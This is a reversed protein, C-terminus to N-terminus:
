SPRLSSMSFTEPCHTAGASTSPASMSWGAAGARPPALGRVVRLAEPAARGLLDRPKPLPIADQVPLRRGETPVRAAKRVERVVADVVMDRRSAPLADREDGLVLAALAPRQGIGLKMALDLAYASSQPGHAE